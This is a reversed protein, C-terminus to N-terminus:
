LWDRLIPILPEDAPPMPYDRLNQARVWKLV